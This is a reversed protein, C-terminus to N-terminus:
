KKDGRFDKLSKHLGALFRNEKKQKKIKVVRKKKVIKVVKRKKRRKIVKVPENVKDKKWINFQELDVTKLQDLTYDSDGIDVAEVSDLVVYLSLKRHEEPLDMDYWLTFGNKGETALLSEKQSLAASFALIEAHSLLLDRTIGSKYQIRVKRYLM